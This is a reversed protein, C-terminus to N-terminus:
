QYVRKTYGCCGNYEKGLGALLYEKLEIDSIIRGAAALETTFGIMKAIYVAATLGTKKTNILAARLM